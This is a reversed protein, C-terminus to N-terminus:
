FKLISFCKFKFNVNVSTHKPKPRTFSGFVCRCGSLADMLKTENEGFCKLVKSIISM